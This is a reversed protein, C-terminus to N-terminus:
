LVEQIPSCLNEQHIDLDKYGTPSCGHEVQYTSLVFSEWAEQIEDLANAQGEVSVTVDNIVTSLTLTIM